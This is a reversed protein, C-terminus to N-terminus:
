PTVPGTFLYAGVTVSRVADRHFEMTAVLPYQWEDVKTVKRGHDRAFATLFRESRVPSLVWATPCAFAHELFVRDGGRNRRQAGFPPNMIAVDFVEPKMDKLDAVRWTVDVGLHGAAERAMAIASEDVDVATVRAGLLAAGIALIGTGCGLDVVSRGELGHGRAHWLLRAAIGAPTAYQELDPNPNDHAPITALRDELHSLRM